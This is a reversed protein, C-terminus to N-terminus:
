YRSKTRTITLSTARARLPQNGACSGRSSAGRPSNAASRSCRKERASKKNRVANSTTKTPVNKAFTLLSLSSTRVTDADPGYGLKDGSQPTELAAPVAEATKKGRTPLTDVSQGWGGIRENKRKAVMRKHNKNWRRTAQHQRREGIVGKITVTEEPHTANRRSMRVHPPITRRHPSAHCPCANCASSYPHCSITGFATNFLTTQLDHSHKIYSPPSQTLSSKPSPPVCAPSGSSTNPVDLKRVTEKLFLFRSM